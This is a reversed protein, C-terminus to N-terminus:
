SRAYEMLFAVIQARADDEPPRVGMRQMNVHMRDVVGPWEAATHQAPDPLGHCQSCVQAFRQGGPGKEEPALTEPAPRLANEKLYGRLREVDDDSPAGIDPMWRGWSATKEREMMRMRHVMRDLSADWEAATHGRPSPLAHCQMCYRKFATAGQSTPDPLEEEPFPVVPM